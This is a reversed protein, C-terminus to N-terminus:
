VAGVSSPELVPQPKKLSPHVPPKAFFLCILGVAILVIVGQFALVYSGTNERVFGAIPAGMAGVFAWALRVFGMIKPYNSVGFYDPFINWTAVFVAGFGFGMIVMSAFIFPLTRTFVLLIIGALKLFEATVAIAHVSYKTGVFGLLFQAATMLASMVSMATAAKTPSIGIDFM